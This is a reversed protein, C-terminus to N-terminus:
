SKSHPHASSPTALDVRTLRGAAVTNSATDATISNINWHPPNSVDNSNLLGGNIPQRHPFHCLKTTTTASRAALTLETAETILV